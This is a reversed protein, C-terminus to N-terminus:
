DYYSANKPETIAAPDAPQKNELKRRYCGQETKVYLYSDTGLQMATIASHDPNSLIVDILGYSRILQIGVETAVYLRDESDICMATPGICRFDSKHHLFGYMYPADLTGDSHITSAYVCGRTADAIYLRWKDSSIALARIDGYGEAVIREKGADDTFCICGEKADYKGCSVATEEGFAETKEWQSQPLVIKEM